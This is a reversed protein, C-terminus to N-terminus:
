KRATRFKKTTSLKRKKMIGKGETNINMNIPRKTQIDEYLQKFMNNLNEKITKNNSFPLDYLDAKEKLLIKKPLGATEGRKAREIERIEEYIPNGRLEVRIKADEALQGVPTLEGTKTKEPPPPTKPTLPQKSESKLATELDSPLIVQRAQDSSLLALIKSQENPPLALIKNVQENPLSESLLLQKETLPLGELLLKITQDSETIALLKKEKMKEKILRKINAETSLSTPEKKVMKEMTKKYLKSLIDAEQENYIEGLRFRENKELQKLENDLEKERQKKFLRLSQENTYYLIPKAM